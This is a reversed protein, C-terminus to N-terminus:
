RKNKHGIFEIATSDCSFYDIKYSSNRLLSYTISPSAMWAGLEVRSVIEKDSDPNDDDLTFLFETDSNSPSENFSCSNFFDATFYGDNKLSYHIKEWLVVVKSADCYPLSSQASIFDIDTPFIFEEMKQPILSLNNKAILGLGQLHARMNLLQLGKESPDVVIVKWRKELLALALSSNGGGLDIAIGPTRKQTELWTLVKQSNEHIKSAQLSYREMKKIRNERLIASINLPKESEDKNPITGGKLIYQNMWALKSNAPCAKLSEKAFYEFVEQSTLTKLHHILNM